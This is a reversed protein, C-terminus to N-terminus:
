FEAAQAIGRTDLRARGKRQSYHLVIVCFPTEYKPSHLTFQARLGRFATENKLHVSYKGFCRSLRTM